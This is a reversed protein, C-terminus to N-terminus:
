ENEKDKRTKLAKRLEDVTGLEEYAVYEDIVEGITGHMKALNIYRRSIELEKLTGFERYEQLEKLFDRLDEHDKRCECDNM